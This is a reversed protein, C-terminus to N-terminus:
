RGTTRTDSFPEATVQFDDEHVIYGVRDERVISVPHGHAELLEKLAHMRQLCETATDKFWSIGKANRRYSGKSTTRNFRSPTPLHAEFWALNQRLVERDAQTLEGAKLLRYAAAFIGDEVGSDPHRRSTVFRIFAVQITSRVNRTSGRRALCSPM